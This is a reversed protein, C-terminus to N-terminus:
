LYLLPNLYAKLDAIPMRYTGGCVRSKRELIRVGQTAYVTFHLHPGTAYGTEGSYGITDGIEVRQGESVKILSLHAYLTSLGNGHELLVWRGYSAGPCITDTNGVGVVRGGLAAKVRMGTSARLDIGNHGKGNYGGARAFATDGFHQTINVSDLPWNLVGSGTKPLSTPDIEFRLKSEFELLEQEFADRLTFKEAIIKKYNAEKNKTTALLKNKERKSQELIQKRDALEGKLAALERKKKETKARQVELTLKLEKVKQMEVRVNGEFRELTDIDDWLTSLSDHKLLAELLTQSELRNIARIARSMAASSREIKEEKSLIDGSFEEIALTAAAIRNETIRIDAALKKQELAINKITGQLTKTEKGVKELEEQYGAIENELEAIASNREAIKERLEAITDARASFGAGFVLGFVCLLFVFAGRRM